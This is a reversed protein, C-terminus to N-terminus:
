RPAALAACQGGVGLRRPLGSAGLMMGMVGTIRGFRRHEPMLAIESVLDPREGHKRALRPHRQMM